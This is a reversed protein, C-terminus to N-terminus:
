RVTCIQSNIRIREIVNEYPGKLSSARRSRSRTPHSRCKGLLAASHRIQHRHRACVGKGTRSIPLAAHSSRRSLINDGRNISLPVLTPRRPWSPTRLLSIRVAGPRCCLCGRRGSRERMCRPARGPRRASQTRWPRSRHRGSSRTWPMACRFRGPLAPSPAAGVAGSGAAPGM